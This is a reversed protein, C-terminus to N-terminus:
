PLSHSAICRHHCQHSFCLFSSRFRQEIKKKKSTVEHLHYAKYKDREGSVNPCWYMVAALGEGSLVKGDSDMVFTPCPGLISSLKAGGTVAELRDDDHATNKVAAEPINAHKMAVLCIDDGVKGSVYARHESCGM